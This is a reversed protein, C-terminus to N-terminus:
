CWTLSAKVGVAALEPLFVHIANRCFFVFNNCKKLIRFVFHILGLSLKILRSQNRVDIDNRCRGIQLYIECRAVTQWTLNLARTNVARKAGAAACSPIRGKEKKKLFLLYFFLMKSRLLLPAVGAMCFFLLALSFRRVQPQTTPQGAVAHRPVSCCVEVWGPSWGYRVLEECGSMLPLVSQLNGHCGPPLAQMPCLSAPGTKTRTHTHAPVNRDTPTCARLQPLPLTLSTHCLLLPGGPARMWKHRASVVPARICCLHLLLLLTPFSPDPTPPLPPPHLRCSPSSTYAALSLSRCSINVLLFALTQPNISLSFWPLYISSTSPGSSGGVGGGVGGTRATWRKKRNQWCQENLWAAVTTHTGEHMLAWSRSVARGRQEM